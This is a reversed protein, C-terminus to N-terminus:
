LIYICVGSDSSASFSAYNNAKSAFTDMFSFTVGTSNLQGLGKVENTEDVDVIGASTNLQAQICPSSIYAAGGTSYKIASRLGLLELYTVITTDGISVNTVPVPLTLTANAVTPKPTGCQYM